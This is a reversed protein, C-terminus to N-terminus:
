NKLRVNSKSRLKRIMMIAIISVLGICVMITILIIGQFRTIENDLGLVVALFIGGICYFLPVAIGPDIKQRLKEIKFLSLFILGTGIVLGILCLGPADELGGIIFLIIGVMVGICFPLLIGLRLYQKYETNNSM